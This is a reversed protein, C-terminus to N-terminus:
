KLNLYMGYAQNIPIKIECLKKDVLIQILLKKNLDGMHLELYSFERLEV